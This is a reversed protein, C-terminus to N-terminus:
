PAFSQADLFSNDGYNIFVQTTRTNPGATAFTVYGRKNSQTVPDDKITAKDWVKNVAPKASIGFQAMFDKGSGPQHLVRFFAADDYFGNKVLNYFRDAGLPAWDRHVEIVFDGKTTTFKAKYVDPAKANLAAPNMLSARGAAPKKAAAVAPRRAAPKTQAFLCLTTAFTVVITKMSLM